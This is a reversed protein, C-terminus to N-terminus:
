AAPQPSRPAFFELDDIAESRKRRAIAEASEISQKAAVDYIKGFSGYITKAADMRISPSEHKMLERLTELAEGHAKIANGAITDAIELLRVSYAQRFEAKGTVRYTKSRSWGMANGAQMATLGEGIMKVALLEAERESHEKQKM